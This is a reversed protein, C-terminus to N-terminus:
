VELERKVEDMFGQFTRNSRRFIDVLEYTTLYRPCCYYNDPYIVKIVQMKGTAPNYDKDNKWVDVDVFLRFQDITFKELKFVYKPINEKLAKLMPNSAKIQMTKM